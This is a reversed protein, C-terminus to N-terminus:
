MGFIKSCIKQIDGEAFFDHDSLYNTLSLNVSIIKGESNKTKYFKLFGSEDSDLGITVIFDSERVAEEIRANKSYEDHGGFVTLEIGTKQHLQDLNETVLLHGFKKACKALLLHATTPQANECRNFFDKLIETYKESNAIVDDIYKPLNDTKRLEKSIKLRQMLNNMTPIAAASIGAGTYFIVRKTEIIERLKEFSIKKPNGSCVLRQDAPIYKSSEAEHGDSSEQYFDHDRYNGFSSYIFDNATQKFLNRSNKSLKEVSKKDSSIVLNVTLGCSKSKKPFFSVIFKQGSENSLEWSMASSDSVAFIMCLFLLFVFKKMKIDFGPLM